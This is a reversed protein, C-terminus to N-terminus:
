RNAIGNLTIYKICGDYLWNWSKWHWKYILDLGFPCHVHVLFINKHYLVLSISFLLMFFIKKTKKKLKKWNHHFLLVKLKKRFFIMISYTCKYSCANICLALCLIVVFYVKAKKFVVDTVVFKLIGAIKKTSCLIKYAM